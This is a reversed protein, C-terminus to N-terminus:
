QPQEDEESFEQEELWDELADLLLDEERPDPIDILRRGEIKLIVPSGIGEEIPYFVAYEQGEYDFRGFYNYQHPTGFEDYKALTMQQLEEEEFM